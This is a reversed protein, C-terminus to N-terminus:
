ILLEALVPRHDSAAALLAPDLGPDGHHVVTAEGRV